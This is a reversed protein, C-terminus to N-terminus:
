KKESEQTDQGVPRKFIHKCRSCQSFDDKSHYEYYDNAYGCKPCKIIM